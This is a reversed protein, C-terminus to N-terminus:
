KGTVFRAHATTTEDITLGLPRTRSGRDVTITLRHRGKALDLTTVQELKLPRTGIWADLGTSDGIAIAVNGAAIVEIECRVISVRRNRITLQPLDELPLTGGVTAYGPTWTFAADDSAAQGVRTRGLRVRAPQTDALVRWRRATPKRSAAYPGPKGLSSLFRVLDILEARTVNETLGAPMLSTGVVQEEISKRPVSIERDNADRLVLENNTQRLKIGTVVKGQKTVVM